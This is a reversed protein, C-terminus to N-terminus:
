QLYGPAGAYLTIEIVRVRYVVLCSSQLEHKGILLGGHCSTTLNPKNLRRQVEARRIVCVSAMGQWVTGEGGDVILKQVKRSATM